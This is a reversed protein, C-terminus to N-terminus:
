EFDVNKEKLYVKVKEIVLKATELQKEADEKSAIYFDDYDSKERIKQIEGIRKGFESPFIGKHVYEKNFHAMITKHKKSDTGDFTMVARVSYLVAYYTRNITGKYLRIAMLEDAEKLTNIRIKQVM